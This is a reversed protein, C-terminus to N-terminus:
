YFKLVHRNGVQAGEDYLYLEVVGGRGITSRMLGIGVEFEEVGEAVFEGGIEFSDDGDLDNGFWWGFIVFFDCRGEFRVEIKVSPPASQDM